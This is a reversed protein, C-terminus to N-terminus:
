AMRGNLEATNNHLLSNAVFMPLLIIIYTAVISNPTAYFLPLAEIFIYAVYAILYALFFSGLDRYHVIVKRIRSYAYGISLLIATLGVLGQTALSEIYLNHYSSHQYKDEIAAIARQGDGLLLNHQIYYEMGFERLESRGTDANDARILNDQVFPQSLAFLSLPVLVFAIAVAGIVKSKYQSLLLIISFITVFMIGGRSMATFLSIALIAIAVLYLRKKQRKWLYLGCAIGTAMMFGFVNRNYFFGKLTVEYSNTISAITIIDQFNVVINYLSGVVTFALIMGLFKEVDQRKMSIRGFGVIMTFALAAPLLLQALSALSSGDKVALAVANLGAVALLGIYAWVFRAETAPLAVRPWQRLVVYVAVYLFVALFSVAQFLIFFSSNPQIGFLGPISIAVLYMLLIWLVRKNM